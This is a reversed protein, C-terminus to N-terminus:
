PMSCPSRTEYLLHAPQMRRLDGAQYHWDFYSTLKVRDRGRYWVTVGFSRFAGGGPDASVDGTFSMDQPPGYTSFLHMLTAAYDPDSVINRGYSVLANGCFGFTERVPAPYARWAVWKGGPAQRTQLGFQAARLAVAARSMGSWFGDAEFAMSEAPVSVAAVLCVASM